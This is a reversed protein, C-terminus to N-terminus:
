ASAQRVASRILAIASRPSSSRATTSGTRWYAAGRIFGTAYALRWRTGILWTSRRPLLAVPAFLVTVALRRPLERWVTGPHGLLRRTRVASVGQWYQRNLLWAPTLRSAQIRHHVTLRSNYRASHGAAQLRWALQVEEDSLLVSGTRGSGPDFGGTALLTPVHVM